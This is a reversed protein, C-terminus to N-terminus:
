AAPKLGMFILYNCLENILSGHDQDYEVNNYTMLSIAYNVLPCSKFTCKESLKEIKSPPFVSSNIHM